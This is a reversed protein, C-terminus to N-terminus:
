SIRMLISEAKSFYEVINKGKETIEYIKHKGVQHVTILGQSTLSDLIELAPKWSLNTKYMVNTPKYLGKKIARLVEIYMELKGRKTM